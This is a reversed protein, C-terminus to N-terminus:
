WDINHIDPVFRETIQDLGTPQNQFLPYGIGRPDISTVNAGRTTLKYPIEGIGRHTTHEQIPLSLSVICGAPLKCSKVDRVFEELVDKLNSGENIARDTSIGHIKEANYPNDYEEPQIIFNKVDILFPIM